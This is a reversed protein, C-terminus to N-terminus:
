RREYGKLEMCDDIMGPWSLMMDPNGQWIRHKCEKFDYEIQSQTAGPKYYNRKACGTTVLLLILLSLTVAKKM